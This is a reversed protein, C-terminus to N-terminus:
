AKSHFAWDGSIKNRHRPKYETVFEVMRQVWEGPPPPKRLRRFVDDQTGFDFLALQAPVM